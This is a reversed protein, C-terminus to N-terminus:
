RREDGNVKKHVKAQNVQKTVKESSRQKVRLEGAELSGGFKNTCSEEIEVVIHDFISKLTRFVKEIKIVETITAGCSKM